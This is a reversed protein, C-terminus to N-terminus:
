ANFILNSNKCHDKTMEYSEKYGLEAAERWDQYAGSKGELHFKLDGRMHYARGFNSDIEIAKNLDSIAKSYNEQAKYAMGRGLYTPADNPNIMIAKNFEIIANVYDKSELKTFEQNIYIESNQM